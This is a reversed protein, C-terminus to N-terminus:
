IKAAALDSTANPTLPNSKLRRFGMQQLVSLLGLFQFVVILGELQYRHRPGQLDGFMAYLAVMLFFYIVIFRGTLTARRWVRYIGWGMCPFLLWYLVQPLDLFSYNETTNFPVPTLLYRISGYLPNVFGEQMRSLASSLGGIGLLSLMGVLGSIALLWLWYRRRGTHSLLLGAGLASMMILPTYFRTFFLVFGIALGLLLARRYHGLEAQSVAYAAMATGTMVITDKGNMINSWAILTPSLVLFVFLGTTLRRSMHLGSRAAGAMFAAAVFTLVVNVAVPAFYEPGFIRAADANFLYYVIHQGGAASFLAPFNTWFNTVSVDARLLAEGVDLYAWDDKFTWIGNFFAAYYILFTGSKIFSLFLSLLVSRTVACTIFFGTAFIFFTPMMLENLPFPPLTTM